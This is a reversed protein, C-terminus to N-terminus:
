CPLNPTARARIFHNAGMSAYLVTGALIIGSGLAYAPEPRGGMVAILPKLFILGVLTILISLILMM